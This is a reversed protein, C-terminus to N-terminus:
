KEQKQESKLGVSKDFSIRPRDTLPNGQPGDLSERQGDTLPNGQVTGAEAAARGALFEERTIEPYVAVTLPNGQVTGAKKAAIANAVADAWNDPMVLGALKRVRSRELGKAARGPKLTEGTDPNYRLAPCDHQHQAVYSEHTLMTYAYTTFRGGSKRRQNDTTPIAWKGELKELAEDVQTTSRDTMNALTYVRAYCILPDDESWTRGDPWQGAKKAKNWGSIAVAMMADYVRFEADMHRRAHCAFEKEPKTDSM